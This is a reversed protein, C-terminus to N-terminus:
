FVFILLESNTNLPEDCLLGVKGISISAVRLLLFRLVIWFPGSCGFSM